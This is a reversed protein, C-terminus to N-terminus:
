ASRGPERAVGFEVRRDSNPSSKGRTSWELFRAAEDTLEAGQADTLPVFPDLTLLHEDRGAELRWQGAILGDVLFTGVYGTIRGVTRPDIIRGRDAHSLAINDYEPLFRVPAPTEPDPLAGDEVDFLERGKEDHFLRLGPRLREIVERVRTLWSWTAADQVTAPGFAALYRLVLDDPSAPGDVEKGLWSAVSRWTPQGSRHWLGRPPIQVLPVLYRVAYALSVPDRDLWREALRKGLQATTLAENDLLSRGAATLADLDVGVLQMHFPSGSAYGRDLVPQLVPRMRLADRATVLHLTTRLLSMRVASRDLILKELEAAEFGELRSWLAVYTNAPVQAQMGVLHEIMADAPMPARALLHQRALLARNLARTTLVPVSPVRPHHAVATGAPTLMPGASRRSM